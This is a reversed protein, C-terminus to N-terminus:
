VRFAKLDRLDRHGRIVRHARLDLTELLVRLDLAELLVRFVRLGKLVRM